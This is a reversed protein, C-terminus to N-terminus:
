VSTLNVIGSFRLFVWETQRPTEGDSARLPNARIAM